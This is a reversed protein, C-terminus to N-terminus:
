EKNDEGKIYETYLWEVSGNDESKAKLTQASPSFDNKIPLADSTFLSDFLTNVSGLVDRDSRYNENKEVVKKDLDQEIAKKFVEIEGGQFAYIAQKEDGVIFLNDGRIKRVIEYQLASTDQFEDVMVYRYKLQKRDLLENAKEIILDFDFRNQELLLERYRKHIRQLLEKLHNVTQLFIKEKQLDYAFKDQEVKDRFERVKAYKEKHDNKRYDLKEGIKSIVFDNFDEVDEEFSLVREYWDWIGAIENDAEDILSKEIAFFKRLLDKLEREDVSFNNFYERFKRDNLYRKILSHMRYLPLNQAISITLNEEKNLTDYYAKEIFAEKEIDDIVDIASDLGLYDAYRQILDLCFGHITTIIADDYREFAGSLRKKIYAKEESSLNGFENFLLRDKDEVFDLVQRMLAFIRKKMEMAAANTYTITVIEDLDARKQDRKDFHSPEKKGRFLDYGLFANIYRRSLTYTKGSGAGASIAFSHHITYPNM